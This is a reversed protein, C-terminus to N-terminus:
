GGILPVLKLFIVETDASVAFEDDLDDLQRDDVLLYVQGQRFAELAVELQKDPDLKRPRRFRFGNLTAETDTPQVLGRYREPRERNFREVEARVRREILERVSVRESALHLTVAPRGSAAPAGDFIKLAVAM